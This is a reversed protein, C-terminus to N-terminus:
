SRFQPTQRYSIGLFHVLLYLFQILKCLEDKEKILIKIEATILIILPLIIQFPIAYIKYTKVTFEYWEMTSSFIIVSLIIMLIGVPAVIQKYNNINLVKAIGKSAAYLCISIKVFGSFLILASVTVEIRELYQGISILRASEFTVFNMISTNAVGLALINSVAIFFIISGGILLSWYYVKYTSGKSQM